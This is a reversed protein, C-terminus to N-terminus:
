EINIHCYKMVELANLHREPSVGACCSADVVIPVNPLFAKIILANSIVCIDTCVGILTISEIGYQADELVLWEALETSGFTQKIFTKLERGQKNVEKLARWVDDDIKHGHGGTLCHPIPLNFGEQTSLYDDFHTDQTVALCGDFAKIKQIVNPVIQQAEKTGIVGSIFDNQMDIVVLIKM